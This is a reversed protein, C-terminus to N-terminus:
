KKKLIFDVTEYREDLPIKKNSKYNIYHELSSTPQIISSNTSKNPIFDVTEYREDLPIKKNSKYNIYHELSSTPQIVNTNLLNKILNNSLYRNINSILKNYFM